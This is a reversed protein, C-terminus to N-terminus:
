AADPRRSATSANGGARRGIHELGAIGPRPLRAIQVDAEKRLGIFKLLVCDLFDGLQLTPCESPAM